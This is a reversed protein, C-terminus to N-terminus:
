KTYLKQSKKTAPNPPHKIKNLPQQPQVMEFDSPQFLLRKPLKQFFYFFKEIEM